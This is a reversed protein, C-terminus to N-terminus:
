VKSKFELDADAFTVKPLEVSLDYFLGDVKTEIFSRVPKDPGEWRITITAQRM